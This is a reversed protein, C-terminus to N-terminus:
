QTNIQFSPGMQTLARIYIHSVHHLRPSTYACQAYADYYKLVWIVDVNWLNQDSSHPILVRVIFVARLIWYIV